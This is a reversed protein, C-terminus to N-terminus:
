SVYPVPDVMGNVEFAKKREVCTPCTGCAPYADRYCSHTAGFPVGLVTGLQVVEGKTLWMLPTILRVQHYTGIYIANAMAGIFEPSCDPYAWNRADEAHAGFYVYNAKITLALAAAVSLLNGNRYPVYTPSIGPTDRIEEYTVSPTEKDVDVLTSGAGQFVDPLDVRHLRANYYGSLFAAAGRERQHKQKYNFNITEVPGARAALALCVASDMGGSCLVLAKEDSRTTPVAADGVYVGGTM